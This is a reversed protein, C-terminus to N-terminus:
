IAPKVNASVQVARARLRGRFHQGSVICSAPTEVGGDAPEASTGEGLIREDPINGAFYNEFRELLPSDAQRRVFTEVVQNRHTALDAASEGTLSLCRPAQRLILPWTCQAFSRAPHNPCSQNKALIPRDP